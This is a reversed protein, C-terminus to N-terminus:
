GSFAAQSRGLLARLNRSVFAGPGGEPPGASKTM